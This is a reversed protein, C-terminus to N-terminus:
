QQLIPAIHQNLFSEDPAPVTNIALQKREPHNIKSLLHHPTIVM